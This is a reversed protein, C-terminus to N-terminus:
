AWAALTGDDTQDHDGGRLDHAVKSKTNRPEPPMAYGNHHDYSSPKREVDHTEVWSLSHNAYRTTDGLKSFTSNTADRKETGISKSEHHCVSSM